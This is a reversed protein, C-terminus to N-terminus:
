VATPSMTAVTSVCSRLSSMAGAARLEVRGDNAVALLPM